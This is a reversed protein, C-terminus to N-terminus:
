EQVFTMKLPMQPYNTGSDKVIPNAVGGMNWYIEKEGPHFIFKELLVSLVLELAFSNM